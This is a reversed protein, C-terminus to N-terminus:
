HEGDNTRAIVVLEARFEGLLSILRAALDLAVPQKDRAAADTTKALDFLQQAILNGGMGKLSHAAFALAGYDREAIAHSLDTEISDLSTLGSAALKRLFDDKWSFRARLAPWDILRCMFTPAPSAAGPMTAPQPAPANAIHRLIAAVLTDPDIPKTVHDVMGADLCKQREEALAHATLGIVPLQPARLRIERTADLGDLVPMQVDMLVADFADGGHEDLLDLVQRGNTAFMTRAGEQMLLDDLILRNVEIDDAALLCLGALRHRAPAESRGPEHQPATEPLPLVLTFTSGAGPLSEVSIDGNMLRALHRSIALGLGTGGYERTTSNDAQEFAGFLRSLQEESLGIGTDLVRFCLTGGDAARDVELSVSGRATFKVANSLLNILIQEIRLADGSVWVPLHEASRVALELGKRKADDAIFSLSTDLVAALRFPRAEIKLKGAEIRSFDLIDNVVGLLHEGAALIRTCTTHSGRGLNERMGIRALGVVMGLPTRIEHSMNAVFASKMSALRRAEALAEAQAAAMEQQLTLDRLVGIYTIGADDVLENVALEVPFVSGDKRQGRAARRKGSVNTERVRLYNRLHGDHRSREPEPMLMRVNRGALEETDYGFLTSIAYNALLITGAADTQIVGDAMTHLVARTRAESTALDATRATVQIELQQQQRELAAQTERLAIEGRKRLVFGALIDAATTLFREREQDIQSGAQLHLMLVGIIEGGKCLLPICYIGHDEMDPDAVEHREDTHSALVIRRSASTKGCLRRNLEPHGCQCRVIPPLNRSVSLDLHDGSAAMLHIGGRPLVVLWPLALLQDLCRGLTEELSEGCLLTELMQRLTAQRERDNQIDLTAAQLKEYGRWVLATYLASLLGLAAIVTFHTDTPGYITAIDILIALAVPMVVGLPMIKRILQTLPDSSSLIRGFPLRPHLFLAPGALLSLSLAAHLSPAVIVGSTEHRGHGLFLLLETLRYLPLTVMFVSLAGLVLVPPRPAQLLLLAIGLLALVFSAGQTPPMEGLGLLFTTAALVVVLACASAARRRLPPQAESTLLLGTSTLIVLAAAAPPMAPLGPLATYLAPLDLWWGLLALIGIPIALAAAACSLQAASVRKAKM